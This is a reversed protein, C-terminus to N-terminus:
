SSVMISERPWSHVFDLLWRRIESTQAYKGVKELPWLIGFDMGEYVHFVDARCILQVGLCTELTERMLHNIDQRMFEQNKTTHINLISLVEITSCHALTLLM